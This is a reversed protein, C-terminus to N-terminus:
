SQYPPIAGIMKCVHIYKKCEFNSTNSAKLFNKARTSFWNELLMLIRNKRLPPIHRLYPIQELLGQGQVRCCFPTVSHLFLWKNSRWDETGDEKQTSAREIIDCRIM